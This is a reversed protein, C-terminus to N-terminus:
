RRPQCLAAHGSTRSKIDRVRLDSSRDRGHGNRRHPNDSMPASLARASCAADQGQAFCRNFRMTELASTLAISVAAPGRSPRLCRSRFRDLDICSFSRDAVPKRGGAPIRSPLRSTKRGGSRFSERIPSPCRIRLPGPRRHAHSPWRKGIMIWGVRNGKDAMAADSGQQFAM